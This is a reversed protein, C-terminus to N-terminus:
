LSLYQNISGTEDAHLPDRLKLVEERLHLQGDDIKQGADQAREWVASRAVAGLVHGGCANLLVDARPVLRAVRLEPVLNIHGVLRITCVQAHAEFSGVVEHGLLGKGSRAQDRATAAPDVDVVVQLDAFRRRFVFGWLHNSIAKSRQFLAGLWPAFELELGAFGPRVAADEGHSVAIKPADPPVPLELRAVAILRAHVKYTIKRDDRLDGVWALLLRQVGHPVHLFNVLGDLAALRGAFCRPQDLGPPWPASAHEGGAQAGVVGGEHHSGVLLRLRAVHHIPPDRGRQLLLDDLGGLDVLAAIAPDADEDPVEHVVRWHVEEAAPGAAADSPPAGCRPAPGYRM